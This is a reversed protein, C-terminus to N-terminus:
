RRVKTTATRERLYAAITEGLPKGTNLPVYDCSCSTCAAKLQKLFAGVGDLYQDRIAVPDLDRHYGGVELCQFRSSSAFTFELEEPAMTHFVVVQHGRGRMVRLKQQLAPVDVFFDSFVLFVGRRRVRRLLEELTGILHTGGGPEAKALRDLFLHFHTATSRAPIYTGGHERSLALGM